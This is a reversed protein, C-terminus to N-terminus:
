LRQRVTVSFMQIFNDSWGRTWIWCSSVLPLLLSHQRCLTSPTKSNVINGDPKTMTSWDCLTVLLCWKGKGKWLDQTMWTAIFRSECDNKQRWLFCAKHSRLPQYLHHALDNRKRNSPYDEARKMEELDLRRQNGLSRHYESVATKRIFSM